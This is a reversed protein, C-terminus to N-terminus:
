DRLCRVSHSHAKDISHWRVYEDGHIDLSKDGYLTLSYAHNSSSESVSWWCGHKGVYDFGGFGFGSGGPLASFSFDDMGNGNKSWGSKAKLKKIAIKEGGAFSVLIQWEKYTPLHWGSPCAKRATEWNYLRGYKVCNSEKNDYCKSDSANYNLNEAMWVQNGIKVTKYIKGDRSDTFTSKTTAIDQTQTTKEKSFNYQSATTVIVPPHSKASEQHGQVTTIWFYYNTNSELNLVTVQNQTALISKVNAANPDNQTHYYVRYSYGSGVDNWWLKVNDSSVNGVVNVNSPPLLVKNASSSGAKNNTSAIGTTASPQALIIMIVIFLVIFVAVKKTRMPIRQWWNQIKSLLVQKTVIPKTPMSVFPKIPIQKIPIQALPVKNFAKNYSETIECWPCSSLSGNYQHYTVKKCGILNKRLEDLASHWEEPKPRVNPSTHGDIFARKFLDQIKSPLITIKPAYVPIRIGPINQMFPFEGKEINDSPQPATVSSHSPLIACAFPHAGNMLLQFIHIALAFNDTDQSFTPLATTALSYGGRMKKQIEVPLYEPIGVDCRYTKTGDSVHYSDTDLFVVFGTQPDISINKPNLDGCVYGSNHISSLVACINQAIIIKNEWTMNPYKASSGYEYIVNLDEKLNMKPMTFGIFQGANYLVDQPWAIQSLINKDLPFNIMRVLKQEKERSAKGDKYIKAVLNPQGAINYLKGEGGAAFPNSSLTYQLRGKGYYIM